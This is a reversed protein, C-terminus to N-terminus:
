INQMSWWAAERGCCSKADHAKPAPLDHALFAHVAKEPDAESTTILTTNREALRRIVGDGASQAIAFDVAHLPHRNGDGKVHWEHLSSKETLTIDWVYEAQGAVINYVKWVLARGAHPSVTGDTQVAVAVLEKNM